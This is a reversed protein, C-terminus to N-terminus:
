SCDALKSFVSQDEEKGSKSDKSEEVPHESIEGLSVRNTFYLVQPSSLTYPLEQTNNDNL